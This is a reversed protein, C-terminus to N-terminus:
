RQKRWFQPTMPRQVPRLRARIRMPMRRRKKQRLFDRERRRAQNTGSYGSHNTYHGAKLGAGKREEVAVSKHSSRIYRQSKHWRRGFEGFVCVARGFGRRM